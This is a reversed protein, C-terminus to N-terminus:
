IVKEYAIHTDLLRLQWILIYAEYMTLQYRFREAFVVDDYIKDNPGPLRIFELTDIWAFWCSIRRSHQSPKPLIQKMHMILMFCDLYGLWYAFNLCGISLQIWRGVRCCRIEQRKSVASSYNLLILNHLYIFFRCFKRIHFMNRTSCRVM